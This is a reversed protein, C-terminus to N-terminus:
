NGSVRNRGNAKAKYLFGDARSQLNGVKDGPVYAAVGISVTVPVHQWAALAIRTCLANGMALADEVAADPMVVVFEEGGLRVVIDDSGVEAELRVALEQLVADGTQHGYTDNVQKFHNIDLILVNNRKLIDSGM